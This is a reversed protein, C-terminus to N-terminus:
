QSIQLPLTDAKVLVKRVEQSRVKERLLVVIKMLRWRIVKGMQYVLYYIGEVPPFELIKAQKSLTVWMGEQARHFSVELSIWDSGAGYLRLALM